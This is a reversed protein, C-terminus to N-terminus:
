IKENGKREWTCEGDIVEWGVRKVSENEEGIYM